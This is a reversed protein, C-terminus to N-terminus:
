ARIIGISLRGCRGDVMSVHSPSERPRQSPLVSTTSLLFKEDLTAANLARMPAEPLSYPDASFRRRTSRKVRTSALVSCYSNVTFSGDVNVLGNVPRNGM